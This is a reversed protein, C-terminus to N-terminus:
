GRFEISNLFYSEDGDIIRLSVTSDQEMFFVAKRTGKSGERGFIHTGDRSSIFSFKGLAQSEERGFRNQSTMRMEMFGRIPFAIIEKSGSVETYTRRLDRMLDNRLDERGKFNLGIIKYSRGIQQLWIEGDGIMAGQDRRFIRDLRQQKVAEKMSDSFIRTYNNLFDSKTKLDKLPYSILDAISESDDNAVLEKLKILFIKFDNADRITATSWGTPVTGEWELDDANLEDWYSSSEQIIKKLDSSEYDVGAAYVWGTKDSKLHKVKLWPEYKYKGGLRLVPRAASYENLYRMTDGEDMTLVTKSSLSSDTRIRFRSSAYLLDSDPEIEASVETSLTTAETEQV